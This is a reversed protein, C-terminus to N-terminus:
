WFRISIALPVNRETEPVRQWIYPSVGSKLAIHNDEEGGKANHRTICRPTPV